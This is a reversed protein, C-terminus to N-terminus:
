QRSAVDDSDQARSRLRAELAEGSPPLIFVAVLDSRAHEVLQQTGQWDIDFLVDRGESLAAEVAGKPTGYHNGHVEAHELLEGRAIM